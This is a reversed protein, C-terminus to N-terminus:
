RRAQVFSTILDSLETDKSNLAYVESMHSHNALRKFEPCRSEKCLGEKLLNGQQEFPPPDLEAYVLMLPTKAKLLGALSSREAYKSADTGFYAREPEGAIQGIEFLGSLLIAGALGSGDAAHFEPHSVYTAVHVAGTSHGMLVIRKPDGGHASINDIVWRVAAKVDEAGAPWPNAPALRYTMNVGVIGSRAAMLAINDYFPSGARSKDGGTYAGGHVFILVPRGGGASGEPALVDLRNRDAPGYKVDRTVKVNKYPEQEQLPAYIAAVEPPNVVRGFAKIKAAIDPPMPTSETGAALAALPAILSFILTAAAAMRRM